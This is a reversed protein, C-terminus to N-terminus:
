STDCNAGTATCDISGIKAALTEKANDVVSIGNDGANFVVTTSNPGPIMLQPLTGGLTVTFATFSSSSIAPQDKNADVVQLIGSASSPVQDAVFAREQLGTTGGSGSTVTGPIGVGSNYGNGCALSCVIVFLFIAAFAAVSCSRRM